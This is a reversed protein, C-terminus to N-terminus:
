WRTDDAQGSPVQPSHMARCVLQKEHPGHHLVSALRHPSSHALLV